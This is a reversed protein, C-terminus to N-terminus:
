AAVPWHKLGLVQHSDNSIEVTKFTRNPRDGSMTKALPSQGAADWARSFGITVNWINRVDDYQLEELGVNYIGEGAFLLHVYQKAVDIAQQASMSM